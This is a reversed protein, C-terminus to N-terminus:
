ISQYAKKNKVHVLVICWPSDSFPAALVGCEWCAPIAILEEDAPVEICKRGFTNHNERM